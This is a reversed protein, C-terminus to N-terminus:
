RRDAATTWVRAPAKSRRRGLYTGLVALPTVVALYMASGILGFLCFVAFFGADPDQSLFAWVLGIACLTGVAAPLAASAVVWWWSRVLVGGGVTGGLLLLWPVVGGAEGPLAAGLRSAVYLGVIGGAAALFGGGSRGRPTAAAATRVAEEGSMGGASVVIKSPRATQANAVM